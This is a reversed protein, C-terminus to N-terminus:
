TLSCTHFLHTYALSFAAVEYLAVWCLCWTICSILLYSILVIFYKVYFNKFGKLPMNYHIHIVISIFIDYLPHRENGPFVTLKKDLSEIEKREKCFILYSFPCTQYIVIELKLIFICQIWLLLMLMLWWKVWKMNLVDWVIYNEHKVFVQEEFTGYM